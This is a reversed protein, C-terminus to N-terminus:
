SNEATANKIELGMFVLASYLGSANIYVGWFKDLECNEENIRCNSFKEEYFTIFCEFKKIYEFLTYSKAKVIDARDMEFKYEAEFERFKSDEFYKQNEDVFIQCDNIIHRMRSELSEFKWKLSTLSDKAYEFLGRGKTLDFVKDELKELLEDARKSKGLMALGYGAAGLLGAIGLAKKLM